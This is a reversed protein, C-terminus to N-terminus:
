DGSPACPARDPAHDAAVPASLNEQKYEYGLLGDDAWACVVLRRALRKRGRMIDVFGRLRQGHEAAIVFGDPKLDLIPLSRGDAVVRHHRARRRRRAAAPSSPLDGSLVDDM